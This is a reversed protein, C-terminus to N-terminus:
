KADESIALGVWSEDREKNTIQPYFYGAVQVNVSDGCCDGGDYECAANNTDDDCFGDGIWSSSGLIKIWKDQRWKKLINLGIFSDYGWIRKIKQLLFIM